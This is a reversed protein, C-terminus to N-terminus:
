KPTPAAGGRGLRAKTIEFDTMDSHHILIAEPTRSVMNGEGAHAAIIHVISLPLGLEQALAAGSVPHRLRKGMESKVVAGGPGPEYELVKGVDHLIAGALVIDMDLDGRARAAAAAARTVRGTHEILTDELDEILLTFPIADLRDFSSRELAEDWVGAVMERLGADAIKEIEPLLERIDSGETTPVVAPTIRM